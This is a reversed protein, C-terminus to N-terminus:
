ESCYEMYAALLLYIVKKRIQYSVKVEIRSISALKSFYEVMPYVMFTGKKEVWQNFISVSKLNSGACIYSTILNHM